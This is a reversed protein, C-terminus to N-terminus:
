ELDDSVRNYSVNEALHDQNSQAALVESRLERAQDELRSIEQAKLTAESRIEDLQRELSCVNDIKM